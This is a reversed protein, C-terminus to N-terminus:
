ENSVDAVLHCTNSIPGEDESRVHISVTGAAALLLKADYDTFFPDIGRVIVTKSVSVASVSGTAGTGFTIVGDTARWTRYSLGPLWSSVGRVIAATDGGICFCPASAVSSLLRIM